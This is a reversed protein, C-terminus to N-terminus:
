PFSPLTFFLLLLLLRDSPFGVSIVAFYCCDIERLLSLLSTVAFKAFEPLSPTPITVCMYRREHNGVNLGLRQQFAVSECVQAFPFQQTMKTLVHTKTRRVFVGTKVCVESWYSSVFCPFLQLRDSSFGVSIVAFYCNGRLTESVLTKLLLFM